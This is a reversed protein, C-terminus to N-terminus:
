LLKSEPFYCERTKKNQQKKSLSNEQQPTNSIPEYTTNCMTSM